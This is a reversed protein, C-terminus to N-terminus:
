NILKRDVKDPEESTALSFPYGTAYAKTLPVTPIFEIHRQFLRNRYLATKQRDQISSSRANTGRKLFGFYVCRMKSVSDQRQRETNSVASNAVNFNNEKTEVDCDM